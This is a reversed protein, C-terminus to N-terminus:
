PLRGAMIMRNTLVARPIWVVLDDFACLPAKEDADDCFSSGKLSLPKAYFHPDPALTNLRDANVSEDTGSPPANILNGRFDAGGAGNRGLSVVAAAAHTTLVLDERHENGRGQLPNDGRTNIRVDGTDFLDFRNAAPPAGTQVPSAFEHSVRYLYMRGWPDTPAIGLTKWPLYGECSVCDPPTPRAPNEVGDPLVDTDPWPLRGESVAFGLLAEKIQRLERAADGHGRLQILTALSPVLTGILLGVIALVVAVEVLTFGATRVTLLASPQIEPQHAASPTRRASMDSSNYGRAAWDADM